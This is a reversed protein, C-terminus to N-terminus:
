KFISPNVNKWTLIGRPRRLRAVHPLFQGMLTSGPYMKRLTDGIAIIVLESDFVFIFPFLQLLINSSVPALYDTRAIRRKDAEVQALYDSNDFNVRLNYQYGNENREHPEDPLEPLSIKLNFFELAVEDLIGAFVAAHARKM